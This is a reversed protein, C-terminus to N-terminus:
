KPEGLADTDDDRRQAASFALAALESDTVCAAM